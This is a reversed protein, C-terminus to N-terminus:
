LSFLCFGAGGGGYPRDQHEERWESFVPVRSKQAQPIKGVYIVRDDKDKMIYVGPSLPLSNAKELLTKRHTESM